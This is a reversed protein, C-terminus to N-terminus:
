ALCHQVGQDRQAPRPPTPPACVDITLISEIGGDGSVEGKRSFDPYFRGPPPICVHRPPCHGHFSEAPCATVGARSTRGQLTHSREHMHAIDGRLLGGPGGVSAASPDGRWRPPDGVEVGRRRGYRCRKDEPLVEEDKDEVHPGQDGGWLAVLLSVGGLAAKGSSAGHGSPSGVEPIGALRRVSSIWSRSLHDAAPSRPLACHPTTAALLLMRNRPPFPAVCGGRRCGRAATAPGAAGRTILGARGM